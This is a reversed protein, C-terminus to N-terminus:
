KSKLCKHDFNRFSPLSLFVRANKNKRQISVSGVRQNSSDNSLIYTDSIANPKPNLQTSHGIKCSFKLLGKPYNTLTKTKLKSGLIIIKM